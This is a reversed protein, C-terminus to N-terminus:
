SYCHPECVAKARLESSEGAAAARQEVPRPPELGASRNPDRRGGDQISWCRAGDARAVQQPAGRGRRAGGVPFSRRRLANPSLSPRRPPPVFVLSGRPRAVTVDCAVPPSSTRAGAEEEKKVGDERLCSRRGRTLYAEPNQPVQLARACAMQPSRLHPSTM